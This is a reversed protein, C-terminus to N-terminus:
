ESEGSSRVLPNSISEETQLLSIAKYGHEVLPVKTIMLGHIDYFDQSKTPSPIQPVCIEKDLANLTHFCTIEACKVRAYHGGASVWKLYISLSGDGRSSGPCNLAAVHLTESYEIHTISLNIRLGQNTMSCPVSARPDFYPVYSGSDAFVTPSTALLGYESDPSAEPNTWAFLTEDDSVKM